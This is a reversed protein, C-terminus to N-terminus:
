YRAVWRVKLGEFEPEFFCVGGSCKWGGREKGYSVTLDQSDNLVLEAQVTVWDEDAEEEDTSSEWTTTLNLWPSRGWSLSVIRERYETPNTYAATTEDSEQVEAWEVGLSLSNTDDIEYVLEGLGTIREEFVTLFELESEALAATLFAKERWTGKGEVYAEWFEDRGDAPEARAYSAVLSTFWDFSYSGEVLYGQVDDDDIDSLVQGNVRNLLTWTHQKLSTPPDHFEHEFKEYDRYEGSVTFSGVGVVGSVFAGHGEDDEFGRGNRGPFERRVYEGYVTAPGVTVEALGGLHQERDRISSGEVGGWGEVFSAGL